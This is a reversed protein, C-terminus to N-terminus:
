SLCQTGKAPVDGIDIPFRIDCSMGLWLWFSLLPGLCKQGKLFNWIEDLLLFKFDKTLNM